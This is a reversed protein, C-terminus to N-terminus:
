NLKFVNKKPSQNKVATDKLKQDAELEAVSLVFCNMKCILYFLNQIEHAFLLPIMANDGLQAVCSQSEEEFHVHFFSKQLGMPSVYVDVKGYSAPTIVFSLRKFLEKTMRIGSYRESDKEIKEIIKYDVIVNKGTNNDHILNGISVEFGQM